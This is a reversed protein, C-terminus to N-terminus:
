PSKKKKAPKKATPTGDLQGGAGLAQPPQGEVSGRFIEKMEALGDETPMSFSLVAEIFNNWEDLEACIQALWMYKLDYPDTYGIALWIESEQATPGDKVGLLFVTRAFLLGKRMNWQQLDLRYTRYAEEEARRQPDDIAEVQEASLFPEDDRRDIMKQAGGAMTIERTPANPKGVDSLLGTLVVEGLRNLHVTRGGSFTYTGPETRNDSAQLLVAPDLITTQNTM